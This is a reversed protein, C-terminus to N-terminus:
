DDKHPNVKRRNVKSEGRARKHSLRERDSSRTKKTAIRKVRPRLAERILEALKSRAGSQNMSQSRHEQCIVIVEGDANLRQKILPHTALIEKQRDTLATSNRFDFALTVKTEVKNVNQGGPGGSRAFSFSLESLPIEPSPVSPSKRPQHGGPNM